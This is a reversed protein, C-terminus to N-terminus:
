INKTQNSELSKFRDLKLLMKLDAYKGDTVGDNARWAGLDNGTEWYNDIQTATGKRAINESLDIAGVRGKLFKTISQYCVITM